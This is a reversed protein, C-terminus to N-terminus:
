NLYFLADGLHRFSNVIKPRDFNQGFNQPFKQGIPNASKSPLGILNWFFIRLIKTLITPRFNDIGVAM